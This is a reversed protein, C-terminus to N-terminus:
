QNSADDNEGSKTMGGENLTNWDILGGGITVSGKIKFAVIRYHIRSLAEFLIGLNSTVCFPSTCDFQSIERYEMEVPKLKDSTIYEVTTDCIGNGWNQLTKRNTM